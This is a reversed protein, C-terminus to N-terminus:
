PEPVPLPLPLWSFGNFQLHPSVVPLLDDLAYLLDPDDPGDEYLLDDEYKERAALICDKSPSEEEEKVLITPPVAAASPETGQCALRATDPEFMKQPALM